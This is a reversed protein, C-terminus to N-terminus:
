HRRARRAILKLIDELFPINLIFGFVAGVVGSTRAAGGTLGLLNQAAIDLRKGLLVQQQMPSGDRPIINLYAWLTGRYTGPHSAAISWYFTVTTGPQLPASLNGTPQVDVGALDLRAELVLDHTDYLNPIVVPQGIVEHGSIEATPTIVGGQDVALVLKIVDADGVRLRDPWELSLLRPEGLQPASETAAPTDPTLAPLTALPTFLPEATPGTPPLTATAVQIGVRTPTPPIGVPWTSTPPMAPWTSTPPATPWDPATSSPLTVAPTTARPLATALNTEQVVTTEQVASNPPILVPLSCGLATVALLLLVGLCRRRGKM